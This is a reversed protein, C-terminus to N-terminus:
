ESRNVHRSNHKEQMWRQECGAGCFYYTYDRGEATRATSSAIPKKCMHCIQPDAFVKKRSEM